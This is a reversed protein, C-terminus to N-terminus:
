PLTLTPKSVPLLLIQNLSIVIFNGLDVKLNMMCVKREFM